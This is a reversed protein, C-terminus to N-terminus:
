SYNSTTSPLASNEDFFDQTSMDVSQVYAGIRESKEIFPHTHFDIIDFSM